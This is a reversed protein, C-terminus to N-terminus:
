FERKRAATVVNGGLVKSVLYPELMATFDPDLMARKLFIGIREDEVSGQQILQKVYGIDFSANFTQSDVVEFGNAELLIKISTPNLLNIHGPPIMQKHANGAVQWEFGHTNPTSFFVWGRPSLLKHIKDFTSHLDVLHEVTDWLTVVDYKEKSPMSMFDAQIVSVEPYRRQLEECCFESMECCSIKYPADSRHLAEIFVGISRGIDLLRGASVYKGIYAVRNLFIKIRGEMTNTFYINEVRKWDGHYWQHLHEDTPYPNTFILGCDRCTWMDYGLSQCTYRVHQSACVACSRRLPNPNDQSLLRERLVQQKDRMEEMLHEPSVEDLRISM